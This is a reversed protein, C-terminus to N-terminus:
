IFGAASAKQRYEEFTTAAGGRSNARARREIDTEVPEEGRKRDEWDEEERVIM